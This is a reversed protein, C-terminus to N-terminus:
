PKMQKKFFDIIVANAEPPYAHGGPHSYIIFPNRTASPYLTAYQAVKEGANVDCKNLKLIYNCTLRQVEPKVALDTEGMLHLAPKPKLMAMLKADIARPATPAVAAFTDGRTVWLLYTFSGGNSHGTVYIRKADVMYDDQLTKLMADFFQLDTNGADAAMQWGPLNGEKDTLEGPTNLGQPCITIAEPWLQDFKHTNFINQMNGGHAHYLFILPTVKTKATAPIYVLAKRVKGDITWEMVQPKVQVTLQHVPKNKSLGIAIFAIFLGATLLLVKFGFPSKLSRFSLSKILM